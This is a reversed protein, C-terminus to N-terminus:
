KVCQRTLLLISLPGLPCQTEPLTLILIVCYLPEVVDAPKGPAQHSSERQKVLSCKKCLGLGAAWPHVQAPLPSAGGVDAM